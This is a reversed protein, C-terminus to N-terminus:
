PSFGRSLVYAVVNMREEETFVDKWSPMKRFGYTVRDYVFAADYRAPRLKPAKGPYAAAGHCGRCTGEWVEKGAALNEPNSLYEESFEPIVKKIEDEAVVPM